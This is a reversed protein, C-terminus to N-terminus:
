QPIKPPMMGTRAEDLRSRLMGLDVPKDIREVKTTELFTRLPDTAAGGTMILVRQEMGPWREKIRRYVDAGSMRPMSLDCLILHFEHNSLLDLAAQGGDCIVIDDKARLARQLSRAIMQEDDIVLIRLRTPSAAPIDVPTKTKTTPSHNEGVGGIAPASSSPSTPSTPLLSDGVAPAAALTLTVTTGRGHTSEVAMSGNMAKMISHSISLGLGIGKGIEKTTFFPDLIRPLIDPPIGVGDDKVFIEVVCRDPIHQARIEVKGFSATKSPDARIADLGNILVNLIVQALRNPDALVRPVEQECRLEIPACGPMGARALKVARILIPSLMCPAMPHADVSSFTKIDRVISALRSAGHRIDEITRALDTWQPLTPDNTTAILEPLVEELFSINTLLYALPNNMEHAVGAALTGLAALRETELLRRYAARRETVDRMVGVWHTCKKTTESVIPVVDLEAWFTSGDKRYKLLEVRVPELRDRAAQIQRLPERETEPGITIDPLAGVAEDYPFGTMETFMRNVYIIPRVGKEDREGETVLVADKLDGVARALLPLIGDGTAVM